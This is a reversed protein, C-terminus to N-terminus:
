RRHRGRIAGRRRGRQYQTLHRCHQRDDGRQGHLGVPGQARDRRLERGAGLQRGHAAHCLHVAAAGLKKIGSVITGLRRVTENMANGLLDRDGRPRVPHRLDGQALAGALTACERMYAALERFSDALHGVEDGSRYTVERSVDGVAMQEAIETVERLPRTISLIVATAIGLTLLLLAAALILVTWATDRASRESATAAALVGNAQYDELTKYLDIKSTAADFWVGPDVGFGGTAARDIATKEYGAIQGFVSSAQTRTWHALVEPGAARQFVTLYAQQAAILSVVTTFQGAAFRDVTFVTTLQARELGASEKASLLALYAQLRAAISPNRNQGVTIAIMNLLTQNLDTYGGIIQAPPTALGAAQSRLTTIRGVATRVTDLAARVAAPADAARAGVVHRYEALRKDTAQQQAKLEPGFKAGKASTFQATRGRERQTEHLLNGASVSFTTLMKVEASAAAQRQKDIVLAGAFGAVGILAILLGAGIKTRIKTNRWLGM